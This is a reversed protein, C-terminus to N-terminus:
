SSSAKKAANLEKTYLDNSPELKAAQQLEVIAKGHKGLKGLSLGKRFYAKANKPDLNKIVADADAIANEHRELMYYCLSRNTYLQSIVASRSGLKKMDELKITSNFHDIGKSFEKIAAEYNKAKYRDRICM